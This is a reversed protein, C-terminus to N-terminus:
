FTVIRIKLGKERAIRIMHETGKSKGDWFAVLSDAYEAMQENRRFGALKGFKDWDPLFRKIPIHLDNAFQEGIYDAGRAGGSIIETPEKKSFLHELKEYGFETNTFSRSGAIITKM